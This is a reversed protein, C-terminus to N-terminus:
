LYISSIKPIHVRSEADKSLYKLKMFLKWVSTFKLVSRDSWDVCLSIGDKSVRRVTYGEPPVCSYM